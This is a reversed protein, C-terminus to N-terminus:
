SEEKEIAGAARLADVVGTAVRYKLEHIAQQSYFAVHPTIVVNPCERLPSDAALPESEVVDLGAGGLHGSRLAGALASEDVVAGRATNVLFSGPRMRALEAAGILHRTRETLPLHLSVVDSTALLEDFGVRGIGDPLPQEDYAVVDFGLAAAKRAVMAGIRGVGVLGLRLTSTRRVPRVEDLDWRGARVARDAAVVGRTLALILAITHDSVESVAYDPVCIVAVGREAAAAVDITDVGTGYRAVARLGPLEALAARTVPAYQTVLALAGRGAAVVEEATRCHAVTVDLGAAEFVAREVDVGGHDCDTIVVTKRM